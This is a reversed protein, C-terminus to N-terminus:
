RTICNIKFRESNLGKKTFDVNFELEVGLFLRKLKHDLHEIYNNEAQRIVEAEIWFDSNDKCKIFIKKKGKLLKLYWSHNNGKIGEGGWWSDEDNDMYVELVGKDNFIKVTARSRQSSNFKDRNESSGNVMYTLSHSLFEVEVLDDGQINQIFREYKLRFYDLTLQDMYSNYGMYREKNFDLIHTLTPVLLPILTLIVILSNKAEQETNFYNIGDINIYKKLFVYGTVNYNKDAVYAVKYGILIPIKNLDPQYLGGFDTNTEELYNSVNNEVNSVMSNNLFNGGRLVLYDGGDQVIVGFLYLLINEGNAGNFTAIKRM